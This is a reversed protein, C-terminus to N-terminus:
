PTVNTPETLEGLTPMPTVSRGKRIIVNATLLQTRLETQFSRQASLFKIQEFDPDRRRTVTLVAPPKARFVQAPAPDPLIAIGLTVLVIFLARRL